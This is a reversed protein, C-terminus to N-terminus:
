PRTLGLLLLSAWLRFSLCFPCLLTGVRHICPAHEDINQFLRTDQSSDFSARASNLQHAGRDAVMWGCRQESSHLGRLMLGVFCLAWTMSGGNRESGHDRCCSAPWPHMWGTLSGFARCGSGRGSLDEEMRSATQAPGNELRLSRNQGSGRVWSVVGRRGKGCQGLGGQGVQRCGSGLGSGPPEVPM